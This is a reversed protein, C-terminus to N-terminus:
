LYPDFLQPLFTPRIMELLQVVVFCVTITFYSVNAWGICGGFQDFYEGVSTSEQGTFMRRHNQYSSAIHDRPQYPKLKCM